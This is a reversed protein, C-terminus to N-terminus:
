YHKGFSMAVGSGLALAPYFIIWFARDLGHRLMENYAPFLVILVPWFVTCARLVNGTGFRRQVPPFVLLMWLAQSGGAVALFIAIQRDDFSLGGKAISTFQFVPSVATYGLSLLMTHGLIYLVMPVGPSRLVDMTSMQKAPKPIGDDTTTIDRKLTEDLFFVCLIVGTFCVAGAIITALAYPFRQFFPARCFSGPYRHPNSPCALPGGQVATLVYHLSSLTSFHMSM